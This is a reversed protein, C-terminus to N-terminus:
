QQPYADTQQCMPYLGGDWEGDDWVFDCYGTGDPYGSASAALYHEMSGKTFIGEQLRYVYSESPGGDLSSSCATKTWGNVALCHGAHSQVYVESLNWCFEMSAYARTSPNSPENTYLWADLIRCLDEELEILVQRTTPPMPPACEMRQACAGPDAGAQGALPDALAVDILCPQDSPSLALGRPGEGVPIRVWLGLSCTGDPKLGLDVSGPSGSAVQNWDLQVLAPAEMGTQKELLDEILAIGDPAEGASVHSSQSAALLVLLMAIAFTRAM